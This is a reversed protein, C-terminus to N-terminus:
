GKFCLLHNKCKNTLLLIKWSFPTESLCWCRWFRCDVTVCVKASKFDEGHVWWICRAIPCLGGIFIFYFDRHNCLDGSRGFSILLDQVLCWAEWNLNESGRHTIKQLPQHCICEVFGNCQRRNTNILSRRFKPPLPPTRRQFNFIRFQWLLGQNSRPLYEVM